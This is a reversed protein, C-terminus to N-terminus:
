VLYNVDADITVTGNLQMGELLLSDANSGIRFADALITKGTASTSDPYHGAGYIALKKNLDVTSLIGGPLYITDLDSAANYADIFPTSGAFMMVTGNHHLAVTKQSHVAMTYLLMIFIFIIKKM